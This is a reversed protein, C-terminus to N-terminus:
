LVLDQAWCPEEWNTVASDLQPTELVTLSLSRLTKYTNIWLCFFGAMFSHVNKGCNQLQALLPWDLVQNWTQLPYILGNCCAHVLANGCSTVASWRVPPLQYIQVLKAMNPKHCSNEGWLFLNTMQQESTQMAMCANMPSIHRPGAATLPNLDLCQDWVGRERAPSVKVIWM